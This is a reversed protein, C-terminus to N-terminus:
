NTKVPQVAQFSNAGFFAKRRIIAANQEEILSLFTAQTVFKLVPQRTASFKPLVLLNKLSPVSRILLWFTCFYISFDLIHHWFNELISLKDYSKLCKVSALWCCGQHRCSAGLRWNTILAHRCSGQLYAAGMRRLSLRTFSCFDLFLFLWLTQDFINLGWWIILFLIFITIVKM